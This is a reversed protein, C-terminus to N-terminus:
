AKVSNIVGKYYMNNANYPFRTFKGAMGGQVNM